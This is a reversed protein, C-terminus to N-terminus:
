AVPDLLLDFAATFQKWAEPGAAYEADTLLCSELLRALGDRDLGTLHLRPGPLPRRARPALGTRRGSPAVPPVLEWAADPLSALWAGASEV